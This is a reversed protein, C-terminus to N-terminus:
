GVNNKGGLYWRRFIWVGPLISFLILPYWLSLMLTWLTGYSPWHFYRYYIGFTDGFEVDREPRVISSGIYPGYDASNFIVLRGLTDGTVGSWVSVHFNRTFSVYHHWPSVVFTALWLVITFAVFVGSVLSAINFWRRTM